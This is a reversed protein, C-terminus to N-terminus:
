ANQRFAIGPTRTKGDVLSCPLAKEPMLLHWDHWAHQDQEFYPCLLAASVLMDPSHRTKNRSLNPFLWNHTIM